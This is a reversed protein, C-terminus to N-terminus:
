LYKYVRSSRIESFALSFRCCIKEMKLWKSHCVEIRKRELKGKLQKNLKKISGFSVGCSWMALSGIILLAQAYTNLSSTLTPSTPDLFDYDLFQNM